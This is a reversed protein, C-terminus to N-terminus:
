MDISTLTDTQHHFEMSHTGNLEVDDLEGGNGLHQPYKRTEQGSFRRRRLDFPRLDPDCDDADNDDLLQASNNPFCLLLPHFGGLHSNIAQFCYRIICNNQWSKLDSKISTFLETARCLYETKIQNRTYLESISLFLYCVQSFVFIM